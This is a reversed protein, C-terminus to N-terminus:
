FSTSYSTRAREPWLHLVLTRLFPFTWPEDISLAGTTAAWIRGVPLHETRPLNEFTQNTTSKWHISLVHLCRLYPLEVKRSWMKNLTVFRTKWLCLTEPMTVIIIDEIQFGLACHIATCSLGRECTERKKMIFWIHEGGKIFIANKGM